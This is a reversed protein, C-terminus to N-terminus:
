SLLTTLESVNQVGEFNHIVSLAEEIRNPPLSSDPLLARYKAEVDSWEIGRQGSGRPADVTSTYRDGSNTVLTVTGGWSWDYSVPPPSPDVDVRDMLTETVPSHIKEPTAHVWSFDRDAVASAVFYPLSHIAEILDQPRRSGGVTTRNRGSVLIQSVEDPRVNAQLAVNVAAEVTSSFPHAGPWLKIALYRVIDWEQLDHGLSEVNGGGYVGAFGGPPDLINENVTYDRGAALAANVACFAANAGMYERAWSNTGISLGGQTIATIGIAHAMQEDTLKLLKAAAVAGGFAVIQSAHVGGRGGLRTEGIRGSAEYGVVMALLLDQGTAGTREAISLGVSALTTGCHAVNRIDSDDSAAADSLIANVRAVEHAPLRAGDFWVTAEPRGGHEEALERVIRASGILSGAAASALTSAIIMKAHEVALPPLDEFRPRNLIRALTLAGDASQVSTGSSQEVLRAWALLPSAGAVGAMGGAAVAHKLLGRRTLTFANVWPLDTDRYPRM